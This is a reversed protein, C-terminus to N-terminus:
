NSREAIVVTVLQTGLQVSLELPFSVDAVGTMVFQGNTADFRLWSPLPEGNGLKAEIGVANSLSALLENPLAFALSAQGSAMDSPVSVSVVGANDLAPRQVLEVKVGASSVRAAPNVAMSAM